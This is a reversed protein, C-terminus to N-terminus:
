HVPEDVLLDLLFSPRGLHHVADLAGRAGAAKRVEVAMNLLEESAISLLFVSARQFWRRSSAEAPQASCSRVGRGPGPIVLGRQSQARRRRGARHAKGQGYPHRAAALQGRPM